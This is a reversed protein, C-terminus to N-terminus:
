RYALQWLHDDVTAFVEKSVVSRYHTSWGRVIPNITRLVASANAGRLAKFETM